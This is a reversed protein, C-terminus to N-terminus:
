CGHEGLAPDSGLARTYQRLNGAGCPNQEPSCKSVNPEPGVSRSFLSVFREFGASRVVPQTLNILDGDLFLDAGRQAIKCPESLPWSPSIHALDEASKAPNGGPSSLV